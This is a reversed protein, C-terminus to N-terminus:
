IDSGGLTRGENIAEVDVQWLIAANVDGAEIVRTYLSDCLYKVCDNSFLRLM